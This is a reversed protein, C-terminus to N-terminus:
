CAWLRCRKEFYIFAHHRVIFESMATRLIYLVDVRSDIMCSACSRWNLVGRFSKRDISLSFKTKKMSTERPATPVTRGPAGDKRPSGPGGGAASPGGDDDSDQGGTLFVTGSGGGGVVNGSGNLGDAQVTAADGSGRAGGGGSSPEVVEM